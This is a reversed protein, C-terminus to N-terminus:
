ISDGIRAASEILRMEGDNKLRYNKSSASAVRECGREEDEVIEHLPRAQRGSNIILSHSYSVGASVEVRM